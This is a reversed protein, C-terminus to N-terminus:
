EGGDERDLGLDKRLEDVRQDIQQELYYMGAVYSAYDHGEDPAAAMSSRQLALLEGHLAEAIRAQVAQELRGSATAVGRGEELGLRRVAERVRAPKREVLAIALNLATSLSM